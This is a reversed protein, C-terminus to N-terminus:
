TLARSRGVCIWGVLGLFSVLSVAAAVEYFPLQWAIREPGPLLMFRYVNQSYNTPSFYPYYSVALQIPLSSNSSVLYYGQGDTINVPAYTPRFFSILSAAMASAADTTANSVPGFFDFPPTVYPKVIPVSLDTKLESANGVSYVPIGSPTPGNYGALVVAGYVESVPAITVFDLMFGDRGFLNVFLAFQLAETANAAEILIPTVAVAQSIPTIDTSSPVITTESTANFNTVLENAGTLHMLNDAVVPSAILYQSWEYYLTLSFFSPDGQAFPGSVTSYGFAPSYAVPSYPSTLASGVVLLSNGSLQGYSSAPPLSDFAVPYTGFAVPAAIVVLTLVALVRSTSPLHLQGTSMAFATVLFLVPINLFLIRWPLINDVFGNLVSFNWGFSAKAVAAVMAVVAIAIVVFLSHYGEDLTHRITFAAIALAFVLLVSAGVATLFSVGFPPVYEIYPSMYGSMELLQVWSFVCLALLVPVAKLVPKRSVVLGLIVAGVFLYGFSETYISLASFLILGLLGRKNERTRLGFVLAALSFSFSLTYPDAGAFNMAGGPLLLVAAGLLAQKIRRNSSLKMGLEDALAVASIALALPTLLWVVNCAITAAQYASVFFSFLSYLVWTIAYYGIGYGALFAYGHYQIPTYDGALLGQVFELTRFIHARIDGAPAVGTVVSWASFFVLDLALLFLYQKNGKLWGITRVM